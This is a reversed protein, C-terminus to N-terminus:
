LIRRVGPLRVLAAAVLWSGVCASLGVVIWKVLSAAQWDHALLTLAVLIPSHICYVAFSQRALAKMFANTRSLYTRSVCLIFLIVGWAVFPEWMAYFLAYANWGGLFSTPEPCIMFVAPLLVILVLAAITWPLAYSWRVRELWRGYSAMCGTFFLVLYSAFYGPLMGAFVRGVPTGLRISFSAAGTLVAVLLLAGRSPLPPFDGATRPRVIRVFLVYLLSFLLLAQAFWLPGCSYHRLVYVWTIGDFISGGPEMLGALGITVPGLILAFVALPIGLRLLRDRLFQVAGKRAFSLPTFYGAILFFFGMAYAQSVGDFLLYGVQMTLPLDVNKVEYYYWGGHAGYTIGAHLFVVLATLFVRIHDLYAQRRESHRTGAASLIDEM